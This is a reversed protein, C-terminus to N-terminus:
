LFDAISEVDEPFLQGAESMVVRGDRGLVVTVPLGKPKPLARQVAPTVWASPFAYGRRQLYAVADEPKRDISLGVFSLGRGAQERWLKDMLPSQVACFPCWSAWWYLVLVRGAADAPRWPRGDLLMLEPVQLRSGLPPLPGAQAESVPPTQAPTAGAWALGAGAAALRLAQRRSLAPLGLAAAATRGPWPSPGDDRPPCPPVANM